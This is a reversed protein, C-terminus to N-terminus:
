KKEIKYILNLSISKEFRLRNLLSHWTTAHLIIRTKRKANGITIEFTHIKASM